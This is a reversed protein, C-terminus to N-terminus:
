TPNKACEEDEVLRLLDEVFLNKMIAETANNGYSNSNNIATKTMAAVAIPLFPEM